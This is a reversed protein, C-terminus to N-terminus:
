ILDRDDLMYLDANRVTVDGPQSSLLHSRVRGLWHDDHQEEQLSTIDTLARLARDLVPETEEENPGAEGADSM